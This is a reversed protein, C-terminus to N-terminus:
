SLKVKFLMFNHFVTILLDIHPFNYKGKPITAFTNFVVLSIKDNDDALFSNIATM